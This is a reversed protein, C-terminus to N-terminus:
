GIPEFESNSITHFRYAIKSFDQGFEHQVMDLPCINLILCLWNDYDIKIIEQFIKGRGSNTAVSVVNYINNNKM